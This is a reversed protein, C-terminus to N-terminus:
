GFITKGAWASKKLVRDLRAKLEEPIERIRGLLFEFFAVTTETDAMARHSPRVPLRYKKMLVELAYSAENRLLIRALQVTDITPNKFSLHNYKLFNLDFAINHGVIPADGIFDAIKEKIEVFRPADKLMDNTIGTLRTIEYPVQLAPPRALSEFRGIIKGNEWRIVGIEIIHNVSPDFGTTEVDLFIFSKM